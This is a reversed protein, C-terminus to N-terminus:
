APRGTRRCRRQGVRRGDEGAPDRREGRRHIRPSGVGHPHCERNCPAPFAGILRRDDDVCWGRARAAPNAEHLTLRVQNIRIAAFAPQLGNQAATRCLESRGARIQGHKARTAYRRAGRRSRRWGQRRGAFGRRARVLPGRQKYRPAQQQDHKARPHEPAPAMHHGTHDANTSSVLARSRAFPAGMIKPNTDAHLGGNNTTSPKM